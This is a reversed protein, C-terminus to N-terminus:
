RTESSKEPPTVEISFKVGQKELLSGLKKVVGVFNGIAGRALSDPDDFWDSNCNVCTLPLTVTKRLSILLSGGCYKCELRVGLLDSVEIFQKTQSTM